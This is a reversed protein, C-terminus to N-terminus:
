QQLKNKFFEIVEEPSKTKLHHYVLSGQVNILKRFDSIIMEEGLYTIYKNNCKNRNQEYPTSWKCNDKSYGKDNDIRDLTHKDTPRNGVDRFFTSFDNVWDESMTIGRGGYRHYVHSNENFCRDKIGQWTRYEAYNPFKRVEIKIERPTCGCNQVENTRLSTGKVVREKGCECVCRWLIHKSKTSGERAVVTLKNFKLGEM